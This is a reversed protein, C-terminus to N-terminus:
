AATSAGTRARTSALYIGILVLLLGVADGPGTPRDFFIVDWLFSASPQILLLLGVLFAPVAAMAQTILIWGIAQCFVGYVILILWTERNPVAFSSGEALGIGLLMLGSLLSVWALVPIPSMAPHRHQGRQMSVIYTAYFVATALGLWVGLRYQASLASWDVGILLAIGALALLVGCFFVWGPRERFWLMGILAVVFVQLSALITALGPGVYEISQHWVYMDAAFLTAPLLLWIFGSSRTWLPRRQLGCIALLVLGGILMRYTASVTPPVAALKAWPASTSIILAGIILQLVARRFTM